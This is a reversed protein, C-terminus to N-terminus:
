VVVVESYLKLMQCTLNLEGGMRNVSFQCAELQQRELDMFSGFSQQNRKKETILLGHMLEQDMNM